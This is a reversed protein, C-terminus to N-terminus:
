PRDIGESFNSIRTELDIFINHLGNLIPEGIKLKSGNKILKQQEDTDPIM